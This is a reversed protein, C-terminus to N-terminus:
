EPILIERFGISGVGSAKLFYRGPKLSEPLEIAAEFQGDVASTPSRIVVKNNANAYRRGLQAEITDGELDTPHAFKDRACEFTVDVPGDKSTGTVYFTRGPGPFGRPTLEIDEAPRRIKLAPDGFLNYHQIVDKRMPELTAPGQITSAIADAQLRLVSDDKDVVAAKAQWLAEGITPSKKAFVQDVLKTAFLGNGYPQTIRSGGIFAVPGRRRKFLDEGISDSSISDFEGTSCAIVVMIPLGERIDIQKVQKKELIPFVDEKYRVDDFGERFGHGVYAFFLSGDNIMRIANAGFKPPYFCYKSTAKAYATEVDYAAPIKGTVVSNFQRELVEDILTGFNGEGTVFSIRKQWRGAPLSTEYELTKAAMAQLEELTDAPFRGTVAGYLYDTALDADSAFRESVYNGKCVFTPVTDSDGALLLFKPGVKKVLKGVGEAGAGFKAAIDDTRVVAVKYIKSRHDLLLDLGDAFAPPAVVLYQADVKNLDREVYKSGAGGFILLACLIRM